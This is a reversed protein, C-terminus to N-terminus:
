ALELIMEAREALEAYDLEREGDSLWVKSMLGNIGFSLFYGEQETNMKVMGSRAVAHPFNYGIGRFGTFGKDEGFDAYADGIQTNYENKTKIRSDQQVKKVAARFEKETTVNM